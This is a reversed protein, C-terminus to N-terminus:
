TLQLGKSAAADEERVKRAAREFDPSSNLLDEILHQQETPLLDWKFGLETAVERMLLRHSRFTIPKTTMIKKALVFPQITPAAQGGFLDTQTASPM